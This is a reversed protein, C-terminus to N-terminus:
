ACKFVHSGALLLFVRIQGATGSSLNQSTSTKARAGAVKM